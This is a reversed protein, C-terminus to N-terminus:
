ASDQAGLLDKLQPRGHRARTEELDELITEIGGPNASRPLEEVNTMWRDVTFLFNELEDRRAADLTLRPKQNLLLIAAHWRARGIPRGQFSFSDPSHPILIPFDTVMSKLKSWWSRPKWIPVVMLVEPEEEQSKEVAWDLEKFDPFIFTGEALGGDPLVPMWSTEQYERLPQIVKLERPDLYQGDGHLGLILDGFCYKAQLLFKPNLSKELFDSAL